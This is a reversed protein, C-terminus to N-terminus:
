RDLIALNVRWPGVAQTYRKSLSKVIQGLHNLDHVVWTALLQGLNVTGLVPHEAERTYDGPTIGSNALTSLSERRSGEFQALLEGIPARQVQGEELQQFPPFRRVPDDSLIVKIRPIWNTRESQILHVLVTRPSWAEADEKFDLWSDPLDALLARLTAPTATLSGIAETLEFAEKQGLEEM